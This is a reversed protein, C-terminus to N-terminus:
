AAVGTYSRLLGGLRERCVDASAPPSEPTLTITRNGVGQHPREENYHEIYEDVAHRLSRECFFILRDTCETKVSRVFREAYANLNPSRPPLRLPRVVSLELLHRFAECYKRDRDIILIRKGVLFGDFPDTLNRAIQMMWPTNPNRTIGAIHVRRTSVEMVFFVYYTM